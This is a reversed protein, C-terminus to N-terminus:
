ILTKKEIINEKRINFYKFNDKNKKLYLIISKNWKTVVIRIRGACKIEQNFIVLM